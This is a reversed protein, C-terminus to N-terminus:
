VRAREKRKKTTKRDSAQIVETAEKLAARKRQSATRARKIRSTLKKACIDQNVERNQLIRLRERREKATEKKERREGWTCDRYKCPDGYPYERCMVPRHEYITCIKKKPDFHKCRYYHNPNASSRGLLAADSPNVIDMPPQDFQGLYELMPAILHIEMLLPSSESQNMSVSKVQGKQWRHYAAWLEDPSYPITLKECCHGTCRGLDRPM